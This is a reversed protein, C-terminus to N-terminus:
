TAIVGPEEPPRGKLFSKLGARTAPSKRRWSKAFAAMAAERTQEYGCWEFVRTWFILSTGTVATV